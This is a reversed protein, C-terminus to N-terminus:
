AWRIRVNRSPRTCRIASWYAASRCTGPNVGKSFWSTQPSATTTSRSGPVLAASASSYRTPSTSSAMVTCTRVACTARRRCSSASGGTVSELVLAAITSPGELLIVQELHAASNASKRPRARDSRRAICSPGSSTFRVQRAPTRPGAARTARSTSRHPRRATTCATRRSCRRDGATCALWGCRMSSPRREARPSLVHGLGDPAVEVIMRAAEGRVDSAHAPALTCLRDAAQHRRRHPTSTVSTPSSWNLASTWTAGDDADIVHSGAGGVLTLVDRPGQVTWPHFVLEDLDM